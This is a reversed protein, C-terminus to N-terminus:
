KNSGQYRDIIRKAFNEGNSFWIDGQGNQYLLYTGEIYLGAFKLTNVQSLDFYKLFTEMKGMRKAFLPWDISSQGLLASQIEQLSVAILKEKEAATFDSGLVGQKIETPKPHLDIGGHENMAFIM